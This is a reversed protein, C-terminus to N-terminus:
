EFLEMGIERLIIKSVSLKLCSILVDYLNFSYVILSQAKHRADNHRQFIGVIENYM